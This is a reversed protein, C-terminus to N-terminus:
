NGASSLRELTKQAIDIGVFGAKKNLSKELYKAALIKRDVKLYAMGLHYSYVASDPRKNVARELLPIAQKIDGLKYCIWGMTDLFPPNGSSALPKILKIAMELSEKDGKGESLLVALNNAAIANDPSSDLIDKYEKIAIDIQGAQSYCVALAIRLSQDDPIKSLGEQYTRAAEEFQGAAIQSAGLTIYGHVWQPNKKIAKKYHQKAARLNNQFNAVKGLLLEAYEGIDTDVLRVLKQHIKTVQKDQLYAQTMGLYGEYYKPSLEIVREYTKIAQQFDKRLLRIKALQMQLRFDDSHRKINKQIHRYADDLNNTALLIRSKLNISYLDDPFVVLLANVQQLAKPYNSGKLFYDVLALRNKRNDPELKVTRDLAELALAPEDNMSHAQALLLLTESSNPTEGLLTRFQTIATSYDQKLIAIKGSLALTDQDKPSVHLIEDVLKESSEINREEMLQTALLRKAKLADPDNAPKKMIARYLSKAKESQGTNKYLSALELNLIGIKPYEQIYKKLKKEAEDLGKWVFVLDTLYLKRKHDNPAQQVSQDLLVYADVYRKQSGYLRVLQMTIVNNDPQIDIIEKLFQEVASLNKQELYIDALMLRISASNPLSALANELTRIADQSKNAERYLRALLIIASDTNPHSTLLKQAEKIATASSEIRALSAIRLIAADADDPDSQLLSDALSMAEEPQGSLLYLRGLRYKVDTNSPDLQNARLYHSFAVGFQKRKEEIQAYLIHAETNKSDIQLLNKIEIRAKELNGSELYKHGRQLYESKKEEVSDCGLISLFALFLLIVRFQKM